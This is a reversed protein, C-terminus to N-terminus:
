AQFLNSGMVAIGTRHAVLQAILGVAVQWNWQTVFRVSRKHVYVSVSFVPKWIIAITAAITAIM